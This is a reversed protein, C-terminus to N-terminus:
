THFITLDRPCYGLLTLCFKSYSGLPNKTSKKAPAPARIYKVPLKINMFTSLFGDKPLIPAKINVIPPIQKKVDAIKM